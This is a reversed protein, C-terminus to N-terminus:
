RFLNQGVARFYLRVPFQYYELILWIILSLHSFFTLVTWFIPFWSLAIDPLPPFFYVSLGVLSTPLLVFTISAIWYVWALEVNDQQGRKWIRGNWRWTLSIQSDAMKLVQQELNATFIHGCFNCGMAEMLAISTIEGQHCVPCPYVSNFNFNNLNKSSPMPM